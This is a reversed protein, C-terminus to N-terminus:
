VAQALQETQQAFLRVLFHQLEAVVDAEAADNSAYRPKKGFLPAQYASDWAVEGTNVYVLENRAIRDDFIRKWAIGEVYFRFLVGFAMEADYSSRGGFQMSKAFKCLSEAFQLPRNAYDTYHPKPIYEYGWGALNALSAVESQLKKQTPDYGWVVGAALIRTIDPGTAIALMESCMAGAIFTLVKQMEANHRAAEIMMIGMKEPFRTDMNNVLLALCHADEPSLNIGNNTRFHNYPEIHRLM